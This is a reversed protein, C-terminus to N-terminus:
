ANPCRAPNPPHIGCRHKPRGSPDNQAPSHKYLDSPDKRGAHLPGGHTPNPNATQFRTRRRLIQGRRNPLGILPQPRHFFGRGADCMPRHVPSDPPFTKSKSAFQHRSAPDDAPGPDNACRSQDAPWPAAHGGSHICVLLRENNRLWAPGCEPVPLWATKVCAPPAGRPNPGVAWHTPDHRKYGRHHHQAGWLAPGYVCRLPGFQDSFGLFM